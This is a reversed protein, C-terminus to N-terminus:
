FTIEYLDYLYINAIYLKCTEWHLYNRTHFDPPPPSRFSSIPLVHM